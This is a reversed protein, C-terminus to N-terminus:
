HCTDFTEKVPITHVSNGSPNSRTEVPPTVYLDNVMSEALKAYANDFQTRLLKANENMADFYNMSQSMLEWRRHFIPDSTPGAGALFAEETFIVTIDPSIVGSGCIRYGSVITLVNEFVENAHESEADGGADKQAGRALFSLQPQTSVKSAEVLLHERIEKEPRLGEEFTKFAAVATEINAESHSNLAGGVAGGVAGVPLLLLSPIGAVVGAFAGEGAGAGVASWGRLPTRVASSDTSTTIAIRAIALKARVNDAPLPEPMSAPTSSCGSLVLATVVGALMARTTPPICNTVM